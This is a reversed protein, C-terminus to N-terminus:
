EKVLGDSLLHAKLALKYARQLDGDKDAAKSQEIFKRIQTVAEQQDNNLQRGSLQKLADDTSSLLKHTTERQHAAQEQTL